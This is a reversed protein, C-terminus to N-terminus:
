ECRIYVSKRPDGAVQEVEWMEFIARDSFEWMACESDELMAHTQSTLFRRAANMPEMDYKDIIRQVVHRNYYDLIIPDTKVM